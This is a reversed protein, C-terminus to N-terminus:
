YDGPHWPANVAKRPWYWVTVRPGPFTSVAYDVNVVAGHIRGGRDIYDLAERATALVDPHIKAPDWRGNSNDVITQLRSRIFNNRQAQSVSLVPPGSQWHGKFEFHVWADTGNALRKKAIFDIGQNSNNVLEIGRQYGRRELVRKGASMAHLDIQRNTPRPVPTLSPRVVPRAKNLKTLLRASKLATGGVMAADGVAGLTFQFVKIGSDFYNGNEWDSFANAYSRYTGYIPIMEMLSQQAEEDGSVANVVTALLEAGMKIGATPDTPNPADNILKALGWVYGACYALQPDITENAAAENLHQRLWDEASTFAKKQWAVIPNTPLRQNLWDLARQAFNRPLQEQGTIEGLEQILNGGYVQSVDMGDTWTKEGDFALALADFYM